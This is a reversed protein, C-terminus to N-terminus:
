HLSTCLTLWMLTLNYLVLSPFFDQSDNILLRFEICERLVLSLANIFSSFHLCMFDELSSLCLKEKTWEWWRWLQRSQSLSCPVPGPRTPFGMPIHWYIMRLQPMLSFCSFLGANRGKKYHQALHYCTCQAQAPILFSAKQCGQRWPPDAIVCNNFPAM